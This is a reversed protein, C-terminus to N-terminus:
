LCLPCRSSNAKNEFSSTISRKKDDLSNLDSNIIELQKLLISSFYDTTFHHKCSFIYFKDDEPIIEIGENLDYNSDTQEELSKSARLGPGSDVGNKKIQNASSKKNDLEKQINNLINKWLKEASLLNQNNSISSLLSLAPEVMFENIKASKLYKCTVKMLNVKFENSLKIKFNESEILEFLFLGFVFNKVKQEYIGIYITELELVSYKALSIDFFKVILMKFTVPDNTMFKIIFYSLIEKIQNKQENEISNHDDNQQELHENNSKGNLKINKISFASKMYLDLANLPEKLLEYIFGCCLYSDLSLCYNLILRLDLEHRLKYIIKCLSFNDFELNSQNLRQIKSTKRKRRNDEKQQKLIAFDITLSDLYNLKNIQEATLEIHVPVKEIQKSSLMNLMKKSKIRFKKNDLLNNAGNLSTKHEFKSVFGLQHDINQGFGYLEGDSDVCLSFDYGCAIDVINKNALNAILTPSVISKKESGHGM